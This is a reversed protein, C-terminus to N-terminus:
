MIFVLYFGIGAIGSGVHRLLLEGESVKRSLLGIGVGTIHLLATGTVFGLIYLVPLGTEPMEIGHAHGHFIAFFGVFLMTVLTPLNRTSAIAVGLVFVSFAIGLEVSFLPIPIGMIGTIGGLIMVTVFTLPVQWIAKGGIQASVIGVSVMALFHDFGLVPHLIGQTFGGVDHTGTHAISVAPALLLVLFSLVVRM